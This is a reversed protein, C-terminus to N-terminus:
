FPGARLARFVAVQSQALATRGAALQTTAELKRREADLVVLFDTAGGEFRLRALRAAEGSADDAEILQVLQRQLSAQLALASETESLATLVANEYAALAAEAGAEASKIRQRARVLDTLSWSISPGVAFNLANASFQDNFGLAQFGAQGLVDVRPFATTMELGIQESASALARESAAVDPRRRLLTAPDGIPIPDVITPLAAEDAVLASIRDPTMGTLAGLRYTQAAIEAELPPVSARTTALQARAGEVDLDTGRGADRTAETLRLTDAFNDVNRLAVRRQAELGRLAVYADAIDAAVIALLDGLLAQQAELDAEAVNITRTVRGFLDVEWSANVDVNSIENDPFPDAAGLGTSAAFVASGTRSYQYSSSLTDTPLRNLRALGFQARAADVNAYAVALDRNERLGLAVLENLTEDDFATWWNAAPAAADYGEGSVFQPAADTAPGAPPAEYNPGIIACGATLAALGVGFLPKVPSM